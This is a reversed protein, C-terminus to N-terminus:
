VLIARPLLPNPPLYLWRPPLQHLLLLRVEAAINQLAEVGAMSPAAYPLILVFATELTEEVAAPEVATLLARDVGATRPVAFLLTPASETESMAEEAIREFNITSSMNVNPANMNELSAELNMLMNACPDLASMRIMDENATVLVFM